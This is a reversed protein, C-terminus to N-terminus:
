QDLCMSVVNLAAYVREHSNKDSSDLAWEEILERHMRVLEEFAKEPVGNYTIKTMETVLIPYLSAPIYLYPIM